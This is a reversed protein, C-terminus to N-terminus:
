VNIGETACLHIILEVKLIEYDASQSNKGSANEEITQSRGRLLLIVGTSYM